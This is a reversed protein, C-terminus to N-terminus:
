EYAVTVREFPALGSEGVKALPDLREGKYTVKLVGGAGRVRRGIVLAAVSAAFEAVTQDTRAIAVTCFADGDFYAHLPLQDAM